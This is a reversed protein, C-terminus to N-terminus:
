ENKSKIYEDLIQDMKEKYEQKNEFFKQLDTIFSLYLPNDCIFWIPKNHTLIFELLLNYSFPGIKREHFINHILQIYIPNIKSLYLMLEIGDETDQYTTNKKNIYLDHFILDHTMKALISNHFENDLHIIPNILTSIIKTPIFKGYNIESVLNFSFHLYTNKFTADFIQRYDNNIPYFYKDTMILLHIQFSLPYLLLLPSLASLSLM